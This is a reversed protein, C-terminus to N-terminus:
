GGGKLTCRREDLAEMRGVLERMKAGDVIFVPGRSSMVAPIDISECPPVAACGALLMIAVVAALRM